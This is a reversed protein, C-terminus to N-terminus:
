LMSIVVRTLCFCLIKGMRVCSSVNLLKILVSWWVNRKTNGLPRSMKTAALVCIEARASTVVTLVYVGTEFM